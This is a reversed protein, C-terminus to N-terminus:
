KIGKKKWRIVKGDSDIVCTWAYYQEEAANCRVYLWYKRGDDTEFKNLPEGLLKLVTAVDVGSKIYRDKLLHFDEINHENKWRRSLRDLEKQEQEPLKPMIDPQDRHTCSITGLLVASAAMAGLIRKMHEIVKGAFTASLGGTIRESPARKNSTPM